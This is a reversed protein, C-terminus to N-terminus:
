CCAFTGVSVKINTREAFLVRAFPGVDVTGIRNARLVATKAMVLPGLSSKPRRVSVTVTVPRRAAGNRIKVVFALNSNAIVTNLHRMSLPGKGKPTSSVQVVALSAREASLRAVASASVAGCLVVGVVGVAALRKAVTM